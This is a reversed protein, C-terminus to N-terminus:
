FGLWRWAEDSVQDYILRLDKKLALPPDGLQRLIFPENTALPMKSVPAVFESQWFNNVTLPVIKDEHESTTTLDYGRLAQLVLERKRGRLHFLIFPDTDLQEAILYYVAAVHKCPDGWDPCSCTFDIDRRKQPFLSLGGAQFIAEIDSPMEGALLKAAYITQQSLADFAQQWQADTLYKLSISSRYPRAQSGQVEAYVMGQSIELLLVSGNRAYRKGRQLRGDLGMNELTQVWQKGWWEQGIDGRRSEARIPGQIVLSDNPREYDSLTYDDEYYDDDWWDSM